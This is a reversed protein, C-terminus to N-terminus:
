LIRNRTSNHEEVFVSQLGRGWFRLIHGAKSIPYNCLYNTLILDNPHAGLGMHSTDKYFPSPKPAGPHSLRNLMQSEM